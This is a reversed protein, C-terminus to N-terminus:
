RSAVPLSAVLDLSDAAVTVAQEIGTSGAPLDPHWSRLVYSGPPVDALMARGGALTKAYWPTDSVVIWGVMADHINCGLVVLGAHDFEIPNEPRGVYLKLEFKKAPSFSYVHHRVTDQNPFQVKTGVPVVTVAPVFRRGQQAIDVQALPKVVARAGQPELLVVVDALPQGGKGQARVEVTAADAVTAMAALAAVALPPCATACRSLFRLVTM